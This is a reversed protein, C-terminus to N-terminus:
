KFWGTNSSWKRNTQSCLQRHLKSQSRRKIIFEYLSALKSQPPSSSNTLWQPQVILLRHIKTWSHILWEIHFTLEQIIICVDHAKYDNSQVPSETCLLCCIFVADCFANRRLDYKYLFWFANDSPITPSRELTSQKNLLQIM